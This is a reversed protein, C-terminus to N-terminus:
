RLDIDPYLSLIQSVLNHIILFLLHPQEANKYEVCQVFTYLSQWIFLTFVKKLCVTLCLFGHLHSFYRLFNLLILSVDWLYMFFFFYNLFNEWHISCRHWCFLHGVSLCLIVSITIVLDSYSHSYFFHWDLFKM